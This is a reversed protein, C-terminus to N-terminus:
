SRSKEGNYGGHHLKSYQIKNFNRPMLGVVILDGICRAAVGDDRHTLQKHTHLVGTGRIAARGGVDDGRRAVHRSAIGHGVQHAQVVDAHRARLDGHGIAAAGHRRRDM